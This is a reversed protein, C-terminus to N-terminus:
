LLYPFLMKTRRKYEPYEQPFQGTLYGEEVKACYAFYIGALGVLVLWAWGLAVATGICAILLGSYIPHRVLRYPGSTVLEPYDKRTMPMGWNGAINVRAWVAFALGSMVLVLGVVGLIVDSNRDSGRFAGIRLLVLVIVAIAARIWLEKSWAVHGRKTRIAAVIWYLWFLGWVAALFINVVTM